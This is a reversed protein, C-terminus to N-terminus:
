NESIIDKIEQSTKEDINTLISEFYETTIRKTEESFMTKLEDPKVNKDLFDQLSEESNGDPDPTGKEEVVRQIVAGLILEQIRNLHNTATEDTYNLLSFIKKIKEAEAQINKQDM